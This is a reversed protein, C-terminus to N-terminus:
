AFQLQLQHPENTHQAHGISSHRRVEFQVKKISTDAGASKISTRPVRPPPLSYNGPKVPPNKHISKISIRISVYIGYRILPGTANRLCRRGRGLDGSYKTAPESRDPDIVYVEITGIAQKQEVRQVRVLRRDEFKSSLCCEPFVDMRRDGHFQEFGFDLGSIGNARVTEM